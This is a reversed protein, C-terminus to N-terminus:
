WDFHEWANKAEAMWKHSVGYRGDEQLSEYTPKPIRSLKLLTKFEEIEKEPVEIKYAEPKKLAKAPIQAYDKAAMKFKQLPPSVHSQYLTPTHIQFFRYTSSMRLLPLTSLCHVNDRVHTLM